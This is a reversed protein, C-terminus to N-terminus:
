VGAEEILELVMEDLAKCLDPKDRRLMDILDPRTVSLSAYNAAIEVTQREVRAYYAQGHGYRVIGSAQYTGKSLADYIDELNCIGGGMINRQEYNISENIEKLLKKAEKEYQRYGSMNEWPSMGNPLYKEKIARSETDYKKQLAKRVNLCEDDHKKFLESIEDSMDAKTKKITDTLKKNRVSFWDSNKKADERGFMDMLHMQEHLTTNVQGAINDGKIKPITIKVDMIEGTFRNSTTTIANGKAHSVKFPIGNSSFNELKGMNSYLKLVNPDAGEINNIYDLVKQTNKGEAGKTFVDPYDSLTLEVRETPKDIEKYKDKVKEVSQSTAKAFEEATMINYEIYCRCNCDHAAVGSEGPCKTKTGDSFTFLEGAKVTKGEMNVHNAGNKSYTTKWGKKTRRRQQPRVRQDQMTCWTAANILGSGELKQNMEEASDIFGSEINRHTETRAINKAKGESVGIRESIRKTMTEYREGRMLGINLEQQIQYIVENRNKELVRPLTLKSINNNVAKKLTEPRVSLDKTIDAVQKVTDAKKVAEAIGKYSKEYVDDVLSLLERKLQPTMTDVNKVIENLFWARKNNKDLYSVYMRGENDAYQKFSDALFRDLDKELTKYMATIKKDSLVERSKAVRRIEHLMKNLSQESKPM